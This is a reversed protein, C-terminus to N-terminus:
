YDYLHELWIQKEPLERLLASLSSVPVRLAVREFEPQTLITMRFIVFASGPAYTEARKAIVTMLIEDNGAIDKFEVGLAALRRMVITFLRYRPIRVIVSGDGMDRVHILLPEEKFLERPVNTLRAHVELPAYGFLTHTGFQILGGYLTKTTLELSLAFRRELKRILNPGFLPVDRWLRGLETVYPYDYFPKDYIFAVYRENFEAAFLDESTKRGLAFAESVRGITGEYVGKVANEVSFSMGIVWLMFHDAPQFGYQPKTFENISCYGYWLQGISRFYPFSSPWHKKLVNAYEESSYVIHWETYTLYSVVEPREYGEIDDPAQADFPAQALRPADISSCAAQFSVVPVVLLTLAVLLYRLKRM